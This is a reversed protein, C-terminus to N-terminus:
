EMVKEAPETLPTSHRSRTDIPTPGASPKIDGNHDNSSPGSATTHSLSIPRVPGADQQAALLQDPSSPIQPTSHAVPTSPDAAALVAGAHHFQFHETAIDVAVKQLSDRTNQEQLYEMTYERIKDLERYRDLKVFCVGQGATFRDYVIDGKSSGALLRMYEATKETEVAIQTLTHSLVVMTRIMSPLYSAFRDRQRNQVGPPKTGTGINVYRVRSLDLDNHHAESSLSPTLPRVNQTRYKERYHVEIAFSPNNYQMGGDVFYRGGIKTVPFFTQAASTARAAECVSCTFSMRCDFNCICVAKDIM